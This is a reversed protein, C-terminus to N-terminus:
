RLATKKLDKLRFKVTFANHDSILRNNHISVSADIGGRKTVSKISQSILVHDIQARVGKFEHTWRTNWFEEEFYQTHGTQLLDEFIDDLRRLRRLTPQGRGDNLDGTVMILKGANLDKLLHRRIISAQAIRQRDAKEGNRESVFHVVYLVFSTDKYQIEVKMGKSVGTESEEEPDDNEAIYGERGEIQRLVKKLPLRSIVAVHQRTTYDTSKCVASYQYSTDRKQLAELLEAVEVKNGVETLAFVDSNLEHLYEAINDCAEKFKKIRYDDNWKKQAATKLRLPEGYKKHIKEVNLFECNLTTISLEERQGFLLNSMAVLLLMITIKRTKM